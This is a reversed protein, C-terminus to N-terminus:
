APAPHLPQQAAQLLQLVDEVERQAIRSLWAVSEAPRSFFRVEYGTRPLLFVASAVSRIIANTFGEGELSIGVGGLKGAHKALLDIVLRRDSAAPPLSKAQTILLFAIPRDHRRSAFADFRTVLGDIDAPTAPGTANCVYLNQWSVQTAHDGNVVRLSERVNSVSASDLPEPPTAGFDFRARPM